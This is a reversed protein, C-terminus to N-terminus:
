EAKSSFRPFFAPTSRIYEAYGPRKDVLAAELLTVGSVRMLLFTILAPGVLAPWGGTPLALLGLGWWLVAEGFYNPHRSLSWLGSTLVKGSNDPLRKFRVLQWDAVSEFLFGAAFITVGVLDVLTLRAGRGPGLSFLLPSSVIWLIVAQLLFVKFYSVWWFSSGADRRWATYRFDEGKGINRLGVHLGLRLGWLTTLALVLVGRPTPGSIAIYFWGLLIFGPGWFIDVISANRLPLSVGWLVSFALISAFLGQAFPLPQLLLFWGAAVTAVVFTLTNKDVHSIAGRVSPFRLNTRSM